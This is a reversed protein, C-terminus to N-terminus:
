QVKLECGCKLVYALGPDHCKRYGDILKKCREGLIKSWEKKAFQELDRKNSPRRKGVAIKLDRWLHEIPNLDLSMAPWKLVRWRKTTMWKQTSKSTHKHDNDQQFVWSRPHLGLKRVSPEVTRGLIRQYDESKMIGQVCELCGTGSAAFCGWFMMSGGGYKVTPVTNKEKYAENWKRYVTSHHAKGFLERPRM